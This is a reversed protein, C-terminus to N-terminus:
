WRIECCVNLQLFFTVTRQYKVNKSTRAIEVVSESFQGIVFVNALTSVYKFWRQWLRNSYPKDFLFFTFSFDIVPHILKLVGDSFLVICIWLIMSFSRCAFKRARFLVISVNCSINM